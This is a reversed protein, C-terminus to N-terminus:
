SSVEDCDHPSAKLLRKVNKHMRNGRCYSCSRNNRCTGDFARSDYYQKRREKGSKIAKEFGM